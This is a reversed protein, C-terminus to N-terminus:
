SSLAAYRSVAVGFPRATPAAARAPLVASALVISDYGLRAQLDVTRVEIQLQGPEVGAEFLVGALDHEDVNASAFRRQGVRYARCRRLAATIFLGGPALQRLINRVYRRWIAQDGTASEACFCSVVVDYRGLGPASLASRLAADGRLCRTVRSRVLREREVIQKESPARVGECQLVHRGFEHWDHAPGDRRLWRRVHLLNSELYDAVHLEHAHPALPLLHHVTPGVGFVLARGPTAIRNCARVIFDLTAAEDAEVHSYYQQLYQVADWQDFDSMAAEISTM